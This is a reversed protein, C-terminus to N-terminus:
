TRGSDRLLAGPPSPCVRAPSTARTPQWGRSAPRSGRWPSTPLGARPRPWFRARCPSRCGHEETMRDLLSTRRRGPRRFRRAQRCISCPLTWASTEGPQARRRAPLARRGRLACAPGAPSAGRHDRAPHGSPLSAARSISSARHASRPLRVDSRTAPLLFALRIPRLWSIM